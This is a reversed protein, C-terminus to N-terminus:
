TSVTDVIAETEVPGTARYDRGNKGGAEGEKDEM